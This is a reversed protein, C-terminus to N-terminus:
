IYIYIYYTHSAIFGGGLSLRACGQGPCRVGFAILLLLVADTGPVNM